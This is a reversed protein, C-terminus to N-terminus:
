TLDKTDSEILWDDTLLQGKHYEEHLEAICDLLGQGLDVYDNTVLKHGVKPHFAYPTMIYHSDLDKEGYEVKVGTRMIETIMQMLQNVQMREQGTLIIHRNRYEDDLIKVSLRAADRVHIYERMAEKRGDYYIRNNHMAQTLFRYIANRRDARRGYLSGYRLITYPLDYREQYVEVFRESAQKSARYFSGSESYVYVSSAFIFREANIERAAELAHVNGLVNMHVADVPKDKAEDIDAIGAFNYVYNCGKAANIVSDVDLINGLIMEQGAQLYPSEKLDYVKVRYGNATLADAVHSGLFGSGGIVIATKDSM